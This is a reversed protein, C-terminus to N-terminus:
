ALLSRWTKPPVFTGTPAPGDTVLKLRDLDSTDLLQAGLARHVMALREIPYGMARVCAVDVLVPDEGGVLLGSARPTSALPGEGEGAIIGDVIALYRRQVRDRMVGERDAFFLIRNLDLVTRWITDNGEWSGEMIFGHLFGNQSRGEAMKPARAILSHDFPLPFRQLQNEIRVKLPPRFPYEDGDEAPSGATYHPLWYKENTLGICSKLALTVGSKKHTKLKPINIVVDADLVTRPISYEQRGRSHHPVPTSKHSRHFCFRPGRHEVEGFWSREALDVVTYGLPDGPLRERLLLGLNFSRGFRKVDDLALHPVVRFHRLDIFDIRRGRSAYWDLLARVGLGDVVEELNCGEVPTDVITVKGSPGCARLAYDLIPRLVSGHTSSCALKEGRLHEEFNKSTVFNPKILVRDGPQILAGLPNWDPTGARAADYGLGRFVAEVMEYVPNPPDFPAELAYRAGPRSVVVVPSADVVQM